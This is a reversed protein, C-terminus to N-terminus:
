DFEDEEIEELEDVLQFLGNWYVYKGAELERAFQDLFLAFSDAFVVDNGDGTSFFESEEGPARVSRVCGSVGDSELIPIVESGDVRDKTWRFQSGLEDLPLWLWDRFVRERNPHSQGDHLLYAERVSAPFTVEWRREADEVADLSAPPNLLARIDPANKDLWSAIRALADASSVTEPGSKVYAHDITRHPSMPESTPGDYGSEDPWVWKPFGPAEDRLWEITTPADPFFSLRIRYVSGSTEARFTEFLPASHLDFESSMPFGSKVSDGLRSVSALGVDNTGNWASLMLRAEDWPQGLEELALRSLTELRQVAEQVHPGTSTVLM